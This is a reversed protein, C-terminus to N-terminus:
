AVAELRAVEADERACLYRALRDADTLRPYRGSDHLSQQIRTLVRYDPTVGYRAGAIRRAANRNSHTRRADGSTANFYSAEAEIAQSELERAHAKSYPGWVGVTEAFRHWSSQARHAALRREVNLSCGIYLLLGYSDFARYVYHPAAEISRNRADVREIYQDITERRSRARSRPTQGSM